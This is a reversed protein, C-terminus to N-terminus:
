IWGQKYKYTYTYINVYMYIYKCIHIYIYIYTFIYIYIYVHICKRYQVLLLDQSGMTLWEKAPIKASENETNKM